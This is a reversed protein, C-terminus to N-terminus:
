TTSDMYSLSITLFASSLVFLFVLSKDRSSIMLSATRSPLTKSKSLFVLSTRDTIASCALSPSIVSVDRALLKACNRLSILVKLSFFLINYECLFLTGIIISIYILAHHIILFLFYFKMDLLFATHLVFLALNLVFLGDIIWLKKIHTMKRLFSIYIIPLLMISIYSVFVIISKNVASGYDTTFPLLVESDTIVWIGSVSVFMGLIVAAAGDNKMSKINRRVSLGYIMMILGILISIIFMAVAFLNKLLYTRVDQVLVADSVPKSSPLAPVRGIFALLVGM